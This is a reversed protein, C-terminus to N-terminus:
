RRRRQSKEGGPEGSAAAKARRIAEDWLDFVSRKTASAYAEVMADVNDYHPGTEEREFRRIANEGGPPYRSSVEDYSAVAPGHTPQRAERLVDRLEQLVSTM